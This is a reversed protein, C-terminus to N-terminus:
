LRLEELPTGIYAAINLTEGTTDWHTATEVLNKWHHDLTGKLYEITDDLPMGIYVPDALACQSMILTM